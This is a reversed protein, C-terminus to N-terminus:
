WAHRTRADSRACPRETWGGAIDFLGILKSISTNVTRQDDYNAVSRLKGSSQSPATLPSRRKSGTRDGCGGLSSNVEAVQHNVTEYVLARRRILDERDNNNVQPRGINECQRHPTAPPGARHQCIASILPRAICRVAPEHLRLLEICWGTANWSIVLTCDRRLAIRIVTFFWDCGHSSNSATHMMADSSKLGRYNKKKKKKKKKKKNDNNTDNNCKYLACIWPLELWDDEEQTEKEHLLYVHHGEPSEQRECKKSGAITNWRWDM